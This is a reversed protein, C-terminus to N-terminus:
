QCDSSLFKSTSRWCPLLHTLESKLQPQLLRYPTCCLLIKQLSYLFFFIWFCLLHLLEHHARWNLSCLAIFSALQFNLHEEEGWCYKAATRKCWMLLDFKSEVGWLQCLAPKDGWRSQRGLRVSLREDGSYFWKVYDYAMKHLDMLENRVSTM